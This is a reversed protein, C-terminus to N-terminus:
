AQQKVLDIYYKKILQQPIEGGGAQWTESWPTGPQHTMASLQLGTFNKYREWVKDFVDYFEQASPSVIYFEQEMTSPDTDPILGGIESSGYAKLSGYLERQVPGYKWAEFDCDVVPKGTVALFWGNLCYVLKQLKMHDIAVNESHARKLFTNAVPNLRYAM